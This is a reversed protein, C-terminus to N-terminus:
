FFFKFTILIFLNITKMSNKISSLNDKSGYNIEQRQEMRADGRPDNRPDQRQEMRPDSRPDQRQEMRPDSRPDSRPDGRPDSRPDNRPDQRQEMRPDSRPDNRPDQRQEMRPDNRPDNRPDQKQRVFSNDGIDTKPFKESTFDINNTSQQIQKVNNRDSQLRKLRDEFSAMDEEIEVEVLPKDINDLSYLNDGTDNALGNFNKNFESPNINRDFNNRNPQDSFSVQKNTTENSGPKDANTKKSKLFDPTTPRQNHIPVEIQRSQKVADMRSSMDKTRGTDYSNFHDQDTLDDVIPRFAKDLNSDYNGMDSSFGGFPDNSQRQLMRKQEVDNVKQNLSSPTSTSKIMKTTEPRDMFKVGNNPNSNFDREYKLDSTSKQYLELLNTKKIETSSESISHKKFQDFISDYNKKNIKSSDISRFVMKMNKILINILEEKGDRNINQLNLQTLLIKYFGSINDKSFFLKQIQEEM